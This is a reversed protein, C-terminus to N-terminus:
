LMLERFILSTRLNLKPWRIIDDFHQEGKRDEESMMVTMLLQKYGDVKRRVEETQTDSLYIFLVLPATTDYGAM